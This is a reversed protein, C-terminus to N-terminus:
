RLEQKLNTLLEAHVQPNIERRLIREAGAVALDAVRERLAEKARTVAAAAEAEAAHRAQAVIHTGEQRAEDVIQAAQKEANARLEAMAERAQRMEDLARKQALELEQKGREAAALGDAIRQKREEMARTLPPWVFKMTLWVFVAFAIMQGLLTIGINV